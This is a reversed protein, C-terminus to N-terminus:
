NNHQAAALATPQGVAYSILILRRIFCSLPVCCRLFNCDISVRMDEDSISRLHSYSACQRAGTHPCPSMRLFMNVHACLCQPQLLLCQSVEGAYLIPSFLFSSFWVGRGWFRLKRVVLYENVGVWGGKCSESQWRQMQARQTVTPFHPCVKLAAASLTNGSIFCILPPHAAWLLCVSVCPFVSVFHTAHRLNFWYNFPHRM